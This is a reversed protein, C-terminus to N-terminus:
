VVVAPLVFSDWVLPFVCVNYIDVFARSIGGVWCAVSGDAEKINLVFKIGSHDLKSDGLVHVVEDGVRLKSESFCM